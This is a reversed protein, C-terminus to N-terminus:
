WVPRLDVLELVQGTKRDVIAVVDRIQARVPLFGATADPFRAQLARVAEVEERNASELVTISRLRQQITGTVRELPVYLEPLQPWDPGGAAATFLIEKARKSDTSEVAGVWRPGFWSAEALTNNAERARALSAADLDLARVVDFRDKNFVIYAPRATAVTHLGYVLGALQIVVIVALDFRLSKKARNFVLITLIPGLVVDVAVVIGFIAGIGQARSLVGPYWLWFVLAAACLAVACSAGFHVLGAFLRDRM